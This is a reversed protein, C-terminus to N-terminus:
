IRALSTSTSTSSSSSDASLYCVGLCGACICCRVRVALNRAFRKEIGFFFTFFRANLIGGEAARRAWAASSHNSYHAYSLRWCFILFRLFTIIECQTSLFAVAQRGTHTHTHENPPTPM